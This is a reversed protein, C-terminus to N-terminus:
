PGENIKSELAAKDKIVIQKQSIELLGMKHLKHLERSVTERTLGSRAALETEPVQVVYTNGSKKGFYQCAILLELITRTRASGKMLHTMRRLLVDAGRYTRSLLNLLIDPNSKVFDVAADAPAARVVTDAAAEFFYENPTRNIAWSM